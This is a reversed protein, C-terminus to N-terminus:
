PSYRERRRTVLGATLLAVGALAYVVSQLWAWEPPLGLRLVVLSELGGAVGIVVGLLVLTRNRQWAGIAALVAAPWVLPLFVGVFLVPILVVIIVVQAVVYGATVARYSPSGEGVGDRAARRRSGLWLGLLAFFTLVPWFVLLGLHRGGAGLGGLFPGAVAFGLVLAGFVLLPDSTARRDARVRARLRELEHTLDTEM